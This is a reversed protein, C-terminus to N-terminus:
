CQHSVHRLNAARAAEGELGECLVAALVEGM